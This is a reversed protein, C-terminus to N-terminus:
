EFARKKFLIKKLFEKVDGGPVGRLPPFSVVNYPSLDGDHRTKKSCKFSSVLKCKKIIM